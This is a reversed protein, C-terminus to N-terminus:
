SRVFHRTASTATTEASAARVCAPPTSLGNDRLSTAVDNRQSASGTIATKRLFPNNGRRPLPSVEENWRM